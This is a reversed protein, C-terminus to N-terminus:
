KKRLNRNTKRKNEVVEGDRQEKDYEKLLNGLLMRYILLKKEAIYYKKYCTVYTLVLYGAMTILYVTLTDKGLGIINMTNLKEMLDDLCYCAWLLWGVLFAVTFCLANKLLCGGIYDNRYYTKAKGIVDGHEKELIALKTMIKVKSGKVM